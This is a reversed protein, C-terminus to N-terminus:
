GINTFGSPFQVQLLIKFVLYALGDVAASLIAVHLFNRPSGILFLGFLFLFTDILFGLTNLLLFYGILCAIVAVLEIINAQPEVVQDKKIRNIKILDKLSTIFPSLSLACLLIGLLFPFLGPGPNTLTQLGLGYSEVIVLIGIGELTLSFILNGKKM